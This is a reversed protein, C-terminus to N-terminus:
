NTLGFLYPITVPDTAQGNEELYRGIGDGEKLILGVANMPVNLKVGVFCDTLFTDSFVGLYLYFDPINRENLLVENGGGETESNVFNVLLCSLIWLGAKRIVLQFKFTLLTKV